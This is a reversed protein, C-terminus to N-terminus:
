GHIISGGANVSGGIDDCNVSGGAHVNGGVNDCNVSGGAEVNGTVNDCNVSLDTKLEDLTGIVEIQLIDKPVGDTVRKGDIVVCGNTVVVSHSGRYTRGNIRVENMSIVAENNIPKNLRRIIRALFSSM